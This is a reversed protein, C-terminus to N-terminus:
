AIEQSFFLKSVQSSITWDKVKKLGERKYKLIVNHYSFSLSNGAILWIGEL